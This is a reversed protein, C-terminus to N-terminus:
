NEYLEFAISGDLFRITDIKEWPPPYGAPSTILLCRVNSCDVIEKRETIFKQETIKDQMQWDNIFYFKDFRDVWFWDSQAYRILNPDNRYDNPKWNWPSNLQGGYFLFFEHPEGYKKTVIIQDYDNYRNKVFQAAEKYGYQWASSYTTRYNTFYIYEYRVLSILLCAIFIIVIHNYISIRNKGRKHFWDIFAFLGISTLLEPIPIMASSRLVAYHEKTIAAPIIAILLWLLLFQYDKEGYAFYLLMLFLGFYFFPLEILYLLGHNPVSFQYQTGGSLFLFQPSFYEVYNKSFERAFFVPKNYVAKKLFNPLQSENRSQEISYVAADNLLFVENSRARANPNLLIFPLPIFFLLLIIISLYSQLTKKKFYIVLEKRYILIMLILLLPSVIRTSHYSFLTLGLSLFSLPSNWKWKERSVFFAMSTILFFVSLNSQLVFRSTFLTWPEIAILFATLLASDKRKSLGLALFYSSLVTLIGLIVHPFRIAFETLGLTAIFPITLYLNLPLPYDGYARFNALPFHQGWEDMGTTMVSYANYGHSIEDWNLSPPNYTLAVIRLVFALSVILILLFKNNKINM